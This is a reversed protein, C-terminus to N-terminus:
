RSNEPSTYNDQTQKNILRLPFNNVVLRASVTQDFFM